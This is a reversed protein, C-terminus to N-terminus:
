VQQTGDITPFPDIPDPPLTGDAMATNVKEGLLMVANVSWAQGSSELLRRSMAGPGRDPDNFIAMFRRVGHKEILADLEAEFANPNPKTIPIAPM